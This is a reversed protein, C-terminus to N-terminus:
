VTIATVVGTSVDVDLELVVAGVTPGVTGDSGTATHSSWATITSIDSISIGPILLEPPGASFVGMALHGGQMITRLAYEGNSVVPSGSGTTRGQLYFKFTVIGPYKAIFYAMNIGFRRVPPGGLKDSSLLYCVAPDSGDNPLQRPGGNNVLSAVYNMNESVGPTNTYLCLDVNTDVYYDITLTGYGTSLICSGHLNAYAQGNAAIDAAAQSDADAQSIMSNYTNAPVVYSVNTGSSGSGCDNKIFVGNAITNYWTCTGHANAYAQKNADVDAQAQADADAQSVVSNYTGAAVTYTVSSGLAVGTCDTKTAVGSKLINYYVLECIAGNAPDDAFAQGNAAADAAALANANAKTDATYTGAPVIYDVTTGIYGTGCNDRTFPTSLLDNQHYSLVYNLNITFTNSVTVGGMIVQIILNFVPNTTYDLQTTDNVTVVGTASNVAFATGTNGGIISYVPTGGDRNTAVATGVVTSNATHEDISVTYPPLVPTSAVHNLHVTVTGSSTHGLSDTVQITLIFPQVSYDLSPSNNVTIAGSIPDVILAGGTNGAIILYRYGPTGGTAAVTGILTTNPVHENSTFSYNGLSPTPTFTCSYISSNTGRFLQYRGYRYVISVNPTLTAFFEATEEYGPVFNVLLNTLAKNKCTIIIRKYFQDYGITIGNGIYPNNDTITLYKKLFREIGEGINYLEDGTFLFLEGTKADPFVYGPPLLVAALNHQTGGYGLKAPRTEKPPIAFIDGTGLTITSIDTSLVEKDRTRFIANQHHIILLEGMGQLNTIPGKDKVTEFYNLASYNKWSNTVGEQVQKLSAVIKYPSKDIFQDFPSAILIGNLQNGVANCDKSYGIQNPETDRSAATLVAAGDLNGGMSPPPFFESYADGPIQYRAALDSVTECIFKYNCKIGDTPLTNWYQNGTVDVIDKGTVLGYTIFSDGSIFTDGGYIVQTSAQDTAAMVVGTRVLTQSYYALYINQRLTMLSALYTYNISPNTNNGLHYDRRIENFNTGLIGAPTPIKAVYAAELRTNDFAGLKVDNVVYQGNNIARLHLADPTAQAIINNYQGTYDADVILVNADSTVIAPTGTYTANLNYQLSIHTPSISPKNNLLDFAHFRMFKGILDLSDADGSGGSSNTRQYSAWNGGTSTVGVDSGVDSNRQAGFLLLSQGLVTANNFDRQAYHLEWGTVQGVLDPPIQVGSVSLGLSDLKSIGYDSESAYLQTKCFRMSPMKHHRVPQNRLNPGGIGTSDFDPTDPYLEDQNIWIGCDGSNNAININRCTDQVQYVAATLGQATAQSDQLLDTSLPAPGPVIFARSSRGNTLKLVIYFCYSEEHMFGRIKGSTIPINPTTTITNLSSVWQIKVLNAYNQWDINSQEIMNAMYLQDNLQTMAAVGQYFASPTLVEDLTIQDVVEAGTYIFNATGTVPLEPLEYATIINNLSQVVAITFRDFRTDLNTLAINLAKGTNTGPITSFNDSTAILPASLTNYATITGDIKSYKVAVYYAGMGLNGGAIMTLDVDPPTAEPFLLYDNLSTGLEVTNLFKPNTLTDFWAVEIENKYNRRAEGKIPYATNFGFKYGLTSDDIIPTYTDTDVDFFGLASNTNDTSFIIPYTDTEVTGMPTYPINMSSPLFGPENKISNEFWIGNKGHTYTDQPQELKAADSYLKEPKM